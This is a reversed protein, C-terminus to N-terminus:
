FWLLILYSLCVAGSNIAAGVRLAKEDKNAAEKGKKASEYGAVIAFIVGFIAIIFSPLKTAEFFSLVAAVISIIFALWGM